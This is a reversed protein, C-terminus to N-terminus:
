TSKHVPETGAIIPFNFDQDIPTSSLFKSPSINQIGNAWLFLEIGSLTPGIVIGPQSAEAYMKKLHEQMGFQWTVGLLDHKILGSITHIILSEIDRSPKLASALTSLPIYLKRKSREIGDGLNAMNTSYLRHFEHYFLYHLRVQYVSLSKLVDLISVGIDDTRDQTRSAALIGAYYEKLTDDDCFSGESIVSKLVRPNVQSGDDLTDAAKRGAKNFIDGLNVNCKEVLGKVEGGVYEASPGLLKAVLDKSAYAILGAGVTTSIPEM